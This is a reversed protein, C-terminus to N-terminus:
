SSKPRSAMQAYRAADARKGERAYREAMERFIERVDPHTDPVYVRENALADRFLSDAIAYEGERAYIEALKGEDIGKWAGSEGFARRRIDMVRRRAAIAEDYRRLEMLTESWTGLTGAYATHNPGFAAEMVAVAERQTQEAEVFRGERRYNISLLEYFGSINPHRPGFVQQAIELGKRAFQEAEQYKGEQSLLTALDGSAWATRPHREGLTSRIIDLGSRLLSEARATDGRLDLVVDALRLQLYAADASRPGGTTHYLAIAEGLEAEAEPLRGLRRLHAAHLELSSGILRDSPSLTERRIELARRSMEEAGRLDSLYIAISSLQALVEATAPHRPGFTATRIALARRTVSDAKHFEAVRRLVEGLYLLSGAVEPHNPGLQEVRLALSRELATRAEPYQAMTMEVRGMAELMRAQLLPEGQLADVQVTGRRLLETATLAGDTPIPATADFLGVLFGTVSESQRLSQEADVLARAARDRERAAITAQRVAIGAGVTLSLAILAVATSQVRHRGLFKRARYLRSGRHALVPFGHLYRQVDLSLLDASSYRDASDKRLAMMVIADLAGRLEHRVAGPAVTSPRPPVQVCILDTMEKLSGNVRSYPRTGTILEYLVVGLAYVDSGTTLSEGRVQEPSAYEPTMLRQGTQTLDGSSKASNTLLKAIGFDLLKVTGDAAVLVNAPKIDRHIVLNQHAYHVAACVECFLRLRAELGLRKEECYTTIPVGDVYEMVLFPLEGASVGGDLLRAIGPHALSALIQREDLFRRHLDDASASARLLKVAVQQRYQGDDREALYVVGMGGRGLERLVRYAGIRRGQEVEELAELVTVGINREFIGEAREHAAVLADVETRLRADSGCRTAIWSARDAPPREIAEEFVAEIASRFAADITHRPM